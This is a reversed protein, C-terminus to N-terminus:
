AIKAPRKRIAMVASFALPLGLMSICLGVYFRWNKSLTIWPWPDSIAPWYQLLLSTALAVSLYKWSNRPPLLAILLAFLLAILVYILLDHSYIAVYYAAEHGTKALNEILWRNLPNPVLLRGFAESLVYSYMAGCAVAASYSLATLRKSM